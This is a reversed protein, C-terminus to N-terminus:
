FDKILPTAIKIKGYPLAVCGIHCTFIEGLHDNKGLLTINIQFHQGYQNLYKLLYNGKEFEKKAEAHILNYIELWDEPYYGMSKMM